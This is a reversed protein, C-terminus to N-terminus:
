SYIDVCGYPCKKLKYEPHIPCPENRGVKIPNPSVGSVSKRPLSLVELYCNLWENVHDAINRESYVRRRAEEGVRRRLDEDRVLLTLYEYWEAETAATFGNVGDEIWARYAAVRSAVSPIGYAGYELCRLDSKANNFRTKLLPALGIDFHSLRPPYKEFPVPPIFVVQDAPLDLVKVAHLAQDKSTCISFVTNPNELLVQRLAGGIVGFDDQHTNGCWFAKGNRRVYLTHNPVVACYVPGVYRHKSVNESNVVVSLKTSRPPYLRLKWSEGRSLVDAAGGAKLVLECIVDALEKFSVCLDVSRRSKSWNESVGRLKLYFDLFRRLYRPSLERIENPIEKISCVAEGVFSDLLDCLEGSLYKRVPSIDGFEVSAVLASLDVWTETPLKVSNIELSEPATGVWKASKLVEFSKGELDYMQVVGLGEVGGTVMWHNFTVCFDINEAVGTYMHGTSYSVVLHIPKQYELEGTDLNLTALEDEPTVEPFRKFGDKTLVETDPSYCSGGAWGIVVKGEEEPLRLEVAGWPRIDLDLYNRLLYINPNLGSYVAVLEPTSVTVADAMRMATTVRRLQPSGHHYVAFARSNPHVAHLDDDIEYIIKKGISQAKELLDL